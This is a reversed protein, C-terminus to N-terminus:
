KCCSKTDLRKDIYGKILYFIIFIWLVFASIQSLLSIDEKHTMLATPNIDNIEFLMDLGIGFLISGFAIVSLYILLSKKGLSEKVFAMTVTNTAPGASLFVFSAGASVGSLMLGAAIPLSSTACVYMPIGILLAIIYSLWNYQDFLVGMDEPIFTTIMAGIILGWFLSKAIDEFLQLMYRVISKAHIQKEQAIECENKSCCCAEKTDTKISTDDKDFINTLIGAIIAIIFSSILRYLTFIWGFIGYTALISDVGTIPTSILFSLLSGKSAGSNQLSKALPLVGCSCVPLPIGFLSAKMVSSTNRSSLHKTMFSQPITEHLIAAVLLGFLIYPAMALTLQWLSYIFIDVIM